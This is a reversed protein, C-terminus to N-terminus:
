PRVERAEPFRDHVYRRLSLDVAERHRTVIATVFYSGSAGWTRMADALQKWPETAALEELKDRSAGQDRETKWRKWRKRLLVGRPDGHEDLYDALVGCLDFDGALVARALAAVHRPDTM